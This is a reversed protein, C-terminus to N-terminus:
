PTNSGTSGDPLNGDINSITNKYSTTETGIMNYGIYFLFASISLVTIAIKLFTSLSQNM